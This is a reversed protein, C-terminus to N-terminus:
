KTRQSSSCTAQQTRSALQRVEDAVVASIANLTADAHETFEGIVEALTQTHQNFANFLSGLEDKYKASLRVTLDNEMSKFRAISQAIPKVVSRQVQWAITVGM